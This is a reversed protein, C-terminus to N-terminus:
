TGLLCQEVHLQASFQTEHSHLTKLCVPCEFSKQGGKLQAMISQIHDESLSVVCGERLDLEAKSGGGGAKGQPHPHPEPVPTM